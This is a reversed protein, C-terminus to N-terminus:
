KTKMLKHIEWLVKCDIENYYIIEKMTPDDIINTSTEYLNNALIMANLGNSCVSSTDWTSEILNHKKLAKAVTKLSYNLADKITIPENIFVKNLDYFSIHSDNIILDTHRSKFNHYSGVEAFSWHYMKCLKKNETKLVYNIYDMFLNFMIKESELNKNEMMFSKFIWQNDKEYGIGIMFIYQHNSIEITGDNITSGLDSNFTEFDLYFELIEDKNKWNERDYKIKKPRFLDKTQRNISLIKDIVPGVKGKDMKLLKSNFRPDKWGYIYKSHALQRKKVGCNWIQTIENISDSLDKKIPHWKTDKDNKMNPFLESKSPIPLLSWSSGEDRLTKIWNIGHHTQEIYDFDIGDYDITALKNLFNTINYKINCSEYSYKKGWIFAKQINIGQIKNLALTYIYLQGKYAPINESNLVHIGDSRLPITSHKIDIVKYHFKTGLLSSEYTAEKEDIVEYDMLKNIYDSRVILDPLGFTNNESNHLVGQYIIPVGQKMLAITQNFKKIQKSQTFDAVKIVHHNKKILKILEDEFEIGKNMIHESFIDNPHVIKHKKRCPIDTLSTINYEKLYDILPDNLMYNRISTASIMEFANRKKSYESQLLSRRQCRIDRSINQKESLKNNFNIVSKENIEIKKIVYDEKYHNLNFILETYNYHNIESLTQIIEQNYKKHVFNLLFLKGTKKCLFWYDCNFIEDLLNLNILELNNQESYKEALNIIIRDYVTHNETSKQYSWYNIIKLKDM